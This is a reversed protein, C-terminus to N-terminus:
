KVSEKSVMGRLIGVNQLFLNTAEVLNTVKTM